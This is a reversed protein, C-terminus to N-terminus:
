CFDRSHYSLDMFTGDTGLICKDAESRGPDNYKSVVNLQM